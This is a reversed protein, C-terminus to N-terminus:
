IKEENKLQDAGHTLSSGMIGVDDPIFNWLVDGEVVLLFGHHRWDGSALLTASSERM